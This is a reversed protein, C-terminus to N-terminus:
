TTASRVFESAEGVVLKAWHRRHGRLGIDPWGALRRPTRLPALQSTIESGRASRAVLTGCEDLPSESWASVFSDPGRHRYSVRRRDGTSVQAAMPSCGGGSTCNNSFEQRRNKDTLVLPVGACVVRASDRYPRLNIHGGQLLACAEKASRGSARPRC